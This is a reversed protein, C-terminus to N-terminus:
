DPDFTLSGTRKDQIGACVILDTYANLSDYNQVTLGRGRAMRPSFVRFRMRQKDDNEYRCVMKLSWVVDPDEGLRVVMHQGVAQSLERVKPLPKVKPMDGVHKERQWFKLNM